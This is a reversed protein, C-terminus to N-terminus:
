STLLAIRQGDEGEFFVVKPVPKKVGVEYIYDGKDDRGKIDWGENNLTNIISGLRTISPRVGNHYLNLCYNRSIFGDTKLKQIVFQKQTM